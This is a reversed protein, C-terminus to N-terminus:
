RHVDHRRAPFEGEACADCLSRETGESADTIFVTAKKGCTECDPKLFEMRLRKALDWIAKQIRAIHGKEREVIEDMETLFAERARKRTEPPLDVLTQLMFTGIAQPVFNMRLHEPNLFKKMQSSVCTYVKPLETKACAECYHRTKVEGKVLATGHCVAKVTGCCECLRPGKGKFPTVPPFSWEAHP